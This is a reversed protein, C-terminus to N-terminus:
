CVYFTKNGQNEAADTLPITLFPLGNTLLQNNHGPISSDEYSGSTTGCRSFMAGLQVGEANNEGEPILALRTSVPSGSGKWSDWAGGQESTYFPFEDCQLGTPRPSPCIAGGRSAANMWGRSLVKVKETNSMRNGVVWPPNANLAQEDNTAAGAADFATPFLIPVTMCPDGVLGGRRALDLCKQAALQAQRDTIVWRDGTRTAVYNVIRQKVADVESDGRLALELIDAMAQAGAKTPHWSGTGPTNDGSGDSTQSTVGNLWQKGSTGGCAWHKDGDAGIRFKLTSNVFRIDAGDRRVTDVARATTAALRGALSNLWLRSQTGINWCPDNGEEDPFMQSYGMVYIRANPAARHIARYTATLKAPLWDSIIKAEYDRLPEPDVKGNTRTLKYDAADCAGLAAICGKLVDTFRADNGGISISVHTTDKDVWGQELQTLEGWHYDGSGWDTHGGADSDAPPSNVADSTVSTTMAGSCAIFGFTGFNHQLANQEITYNGSGDGDAGSLGPMHVLRPYADKQSRHCGDAKSGLTGNTRQVDSNRDYPALGEGSSYSDGMAVYNVATASPTGDGDRLAKAKGQSDDAYASSFAVADFIISDDGTGDKAVTTLTVGPNRSFYFMGLDVWKNQQWTQNIVRYRTEGEGLDITYKAQQTWAGFEPVFVQVRYYGRYPSYQGPPTPDAGKNMRWTGSVKLRGGNTEATRTDGRWYHGGYGGGVQHFDIKSPYTGNGDGAFSLLFEGSSKLSSGCGRPSTTGAPVNDVVTANPSIGGSTADCVPPYSIGDSECGTQGASTCWPYGSDFRVQEHGCTNCPQGVPAKWGVPFHTWCKLDYRGGANTHLCPGAPEGSVSPDNPKVSKSPDCNNAATCFLEKPPKVAAKDATTSWWAFNYGAKEVGPSETATIPNGAWGLVKEPYPWDQPHRADDYTGNMFPHRQPDFRPNIPNNGWGVGWPQGDHNDPHFGSNYAWVAYFWNELASPDANHVRLGANYTQNWKDQLIRLGYAINATFDLAVARQTQYPLSTEVKVGNEDTKEHGAIRMGDTAQTLGYGCDAKTWNIDWDDATTSNYIELGYYNGMLPNAPVGPLAYRSAQWMNSEQTIIGLMLQPPVHGTTTLPISPLLTQPAYAPMGYGKWNAPRSAYRNLNNMVAQDVAWEVNRPKPQVAQNAPDNRPVSCYRESEVPDTSSGAAAALHSKPATTTAGLKPNPARDAAQQPGEVQPTVTFTLAKGTSPVTATVTIPSAVSPDPAAARLDAGTTVRTLAVQGRTSIESDQPVRMRRVASPLTAVKAPTGTIYARGGDGRTLGVADAPGSALETASTGRARKVHANAGKKDMFVVGGSADPVLRFPVGTAPATRTIKGKPSVSVLGGAAAAVIGNRVPVPSSLETNLPIPKSLRGKAAAITFLRSRTTRNKPSEDQRGDFQSIVATEGTGCGPNFYALSSQVPLKTTVHTDLDVVATFGGRDFLDAKNTFTRPAYVVVVRRGSGTLCANGIWSDADFGPESLSAATEWTYGTKATATLVHFGNADGSTTWLRDASTRWGAPLVKDRDAPAVTDPPAPPTPAPVPGALPPQDIPPRVPAAQAPTASILGSFLLLGAAAVITKRAPTTWAQIRM